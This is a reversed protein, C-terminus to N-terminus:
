LNILEELVIYENKAIWKFEKEILSIVEKSRLKCYINQMNSEKLVTILYLKRLYEMRKYIETFNSAIKEIRNNQLAMYDLKKFLLKKQEALLHIARYDINFEGNYLEELAKVIESQANIGYIAKDGREIVIEPRLKEPLKKGFYYDKIQELIKSNSTDFPKNIKIYKMMVLTYLKVWIPGYGACLDCILSDYARKIEEFSYELKCYNRDKDFGIGYFNKECKNYGYLFIQLPEHKRKYEMDSEIYYKDVFLMISFADDIKSILYELIQDCKIMYEYNLFRYDLVDNPFYLNELFDLWISNENGRIVYINTFHEYLWNKKTEDWMFVNLPMSYNLYATIEKQIGVKLIKREDLNLEFYENM